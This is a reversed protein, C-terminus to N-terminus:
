SFVPPARSRYHHFFASEARGAVSAVAVAPWAEPLAIAPMEGSVAHDLHALALCKACVRETPDTAEKKKEIQEFSHGLLHLVAQQQAFVLLAAFLLRLARSKFFM